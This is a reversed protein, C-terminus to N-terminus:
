STKSDLVDRIVAEVWQIYTSIGHKGGHLLLSTDAVVRQLRATVGSWDADAIKECSATAVEVLKVLEGRLPGAAPFFEDVLAEVEIATSGTLAAKVKECMNAAARAISQVEGPVLELKLHM